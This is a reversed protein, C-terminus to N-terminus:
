ADYIHKIARGGLPDLIGHGAGKFELKLGLNLSLNPKFKLKFKPNFKPKL